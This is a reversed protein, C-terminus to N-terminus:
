GIRLTDGKDSVNLLTVTLVLEVLVTVIDLVPFADSVMVLMINVPEDAKLKDGAENAGIAAPALAVSVTM